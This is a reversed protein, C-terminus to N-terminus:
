YFILYCKYCSIAFYVFCILLVISHFHHM